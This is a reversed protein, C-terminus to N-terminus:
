LIKWGIATNVTKKIVDLASNITNEVAVIGLGEISLLVIRMSSKQIELYGKAQEETIKNDLKLKAILKINESFSKFEKEAYPKAEKWNSELIGKAVNLMDKVIQAYDINM